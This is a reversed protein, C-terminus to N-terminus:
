DARRQNVMPLNEIDITRKGCSPPSRPFCIERPESLTKMDAPQEISVYFRLGDLMAELHKETEDLVSREDVNIGRMDALNRYVKVAYNLRWSGVQGDILIPCSILTSYQHGGSYMYRGSTPGDSRNQDRRMCSLGLVHYSRQIVDEFILGADPGVASSAREMERDFIPLMTGRLLADEAEERVTMDHNKMYDPSSMSIDVVVSVLGEFNKFESGRFVVSSPGLQSVLWAGESAEVSFLAEGNRWSKVREGNRYRDRAIYREGQVASRLGYSKDDKWSNLRQCGASCIVFFMFVIVGTYKM